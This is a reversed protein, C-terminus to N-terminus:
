RFKVVRNKYLKFCDNLVNATITRQQRNLYNYKGVIKAGNLGSRFKVHTVLQYRQGPITKGVVAGANNFADCRGTAIVTTAAISIPLFSLSSINVATTAAITSKVFNM